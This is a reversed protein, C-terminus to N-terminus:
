EKSTGNQQDEISEKVLKELVDYIGGIAQKKAVDIHFKDAKIKGDEQIYDGILPVTSEYALYALLSTIADPSFSRIPNIFKEKLFQKVEQTKTPFSTARDKQRFADGMKVKGNRGLYLETNM